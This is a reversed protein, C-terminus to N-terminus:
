RLKDKLYDMQVGVKMWNEPTCFANFMAKTNETSKSTNYSKLLRTVLGESRGKANGRL